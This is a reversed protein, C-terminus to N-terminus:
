VYPGPEQDALKPGKSSGTMALIVRYMHKYTSRHVKDQLEGWPSPVLNVITMGRAYYSEGIFYCVKLPRNFAHLPLPLPLAFSFLCPRPKKAEM